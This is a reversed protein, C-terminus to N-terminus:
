RLPQSFDIGLKQLSELLDAPVPAKLQLQQELRPHPAELHWAHLAVRKPAAPHIVVNQGGYMEDGLLPAGFHKAHLRIQHTRGSKELICTLLLAGDIGVDIVEFRTAAHQGDSNIARRVPDDSTKDPGIPADVVLTDGIKKLEQSKSTLQDFGQFM